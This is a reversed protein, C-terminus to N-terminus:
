STPELGRTPRPSTEAISACSRLDALLEEFSQYREEPKKRLCRMVLGDLEPFVSAAPARVSPPEPTTRRHATLIELTSGMFPTTRTLIEYATVGFAYIDSRHDAPHGVIQEPSLHMPTGPVKGEATVQAMTDDVMKALGFDIVKVEPPRGPTEVLMINGPKLDRHVVGKQHAFWVAEGVQILIDIAEAVDMRGRNHLVHQLNTGDVFEMVLYFRGDELRGFDTVYVINPHRARCVTLAERRFRGVAIENDAMEPRLVKVAFPRRLEVHVARYVQGTGGQGLLAEIRFRDDIVHGILDPPPHSM